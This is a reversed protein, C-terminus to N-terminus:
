FQLYAAPGSVIVQYLEDWLMLDKTPEVFYPSSYILILNGFIIGFVRGPLSKKSFTAFVTYEVLVAVGQIVFYTLSSTSLSHSCVFILYDHFIGSSFFASLALASKLSRSASKYVDKPVLIFIDRLITHWSDSWFSAIGKVLFPKDFLLYPRQDGVEYAVEDFFKAYVKSNLSISLLLSFRSAVVYLLSTGLTLCQIATSILIGYYLAYMFKRAFLPIGDFSHIFDLDLEAKYWHQIYLLTAFFLHYGAALTLVESPASLYRLSKSEEKKKDPDYPKMRIDKLTYLINSLPNKLDVNFSKLCKVVLVWHLIGVGYNLFTTSYTHLYPIALMGIIYSIKLVKPLNLMNVSVILVASQLLLDSTVHLTDLNMLPTEFLDKRIKAECFLAHFSPFYNAWEFDYKKPLM